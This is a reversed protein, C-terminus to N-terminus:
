IDKEFKISYGVAKGADSIGHFGYLNRARIYSVIAGQEFTHISSEFQNSHVVVTRFPLKPM